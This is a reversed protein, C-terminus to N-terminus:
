KSNSARGGPAYVGVRALPDPRRGVVVGPETEVETAVPLLARQATGINAAARELGKRLAAPLTDLAERWRRRPVDLGSLEVGDLERALALLATDGGARVRAILEVTRARVAEGGSPARSLLLQRDVASLDALPGTFRLLPDSM